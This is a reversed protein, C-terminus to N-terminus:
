LLDDIHNLSIVEFSNDGDNFVNRIDVSNFVDIGVATFFGASNFEVQSDEDLSEEFFKFFQFAFSTSNQVDIFSNDSHDIGFDHSNDINVIDQLDESNDGLDDFDFLDNFLDDISDNFHGLNDGNFSDNFFWNLNDFNLFNFFNHMHGDFDNLSDVVDNFFNNFYRLVSFLDHFYGFHDFLDHFSNNFDGFQHFHGNNFFSDNLDFFGSNNLFNDIVSNRFDLFNLDNLFFNNGNFLDDSFNNLNRDNLFLYNFLNHFDDFGEISDDFFGDFDDFVFVSPFSDILNDINRFDNFNDNFFWDGDDLGNFFNHFDGLGNFLNNLNM